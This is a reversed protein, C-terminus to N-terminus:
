ARRTIIIAPLAISKQKNDKEFIGLHKGINELAQVKSHFKVKVKETYGKSKGGDHRIDSQVSEIAAAKDKPIKSIDVIENDDSICDQINAFGIKKLENIVDAPTVDCDKQLQRQLQSIRDQIVPKSLNETGMQRATKKPYKARIAAQTANLDILYENCFMEQKATLKLPISSIAQESKKLRAKDQLASKQERVQKKAKETMDVM